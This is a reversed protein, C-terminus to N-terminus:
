PCSGLIMKQPPVSFPKLRLPWYTVSNQSIKSGREGGGTDNQSMLGYGGGGGTHHPLKIKGFIM